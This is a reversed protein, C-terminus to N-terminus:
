APIGEIVVQSPPVCEAAFDGIATECATCLTEDAASWACPGHRTRCPDNWSCACAHCVQPQPLGQGTGAHHLLFLQEYVASDFAFAARLAIANAPPLSEDDAEFGALRATLPETWPRMMAARVKPVGLLALAAQELTVGAAERRKRLYTGPSMPM